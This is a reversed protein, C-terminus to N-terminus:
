LEEKFEYYLMNIFPDKEDYKPYIEECFQKVIDVHYKTYTDLVTFYNERSESQNDYLKKIILLHEYKHLFTKLLRRNEEDEFIERNNICYEMISLIDSYFDDICVKYHKREKRVM